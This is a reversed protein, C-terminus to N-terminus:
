LPKLLPLDLQTRLSQCRPNPTGTDDWVEFGRCASPRQEYITCKNDAGQAVCGVGSGKMCAYFDNVKETLEDPVSGGMSALEGFYFSVRYARCCAGCNFCPNNEDDKFSFSAEGDTLSVIQITKM